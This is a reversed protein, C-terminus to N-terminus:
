EAEDDDRTLDARLNVLAACVLLIDDFLKLSSVPVTSSLVKFVNLMRIAREVHIRVRAIRRTSTVDEGSLQPKCKTFAPINLKVKLPFLLDDTTFGRDAMFEDGPLLYQLFGSKEVIFKDSARGGYAKSISM